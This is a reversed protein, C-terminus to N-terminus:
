ALMAGTAIIGLITNFIGLFNSPGSLKPIKPPTYGVTPNWGFVKQFLGLQNPDVSDMPIQPNTESYYIFKCLIEFTFGGKQSRAAIDAFIPTYPNVYGLFKSLIPYEAALCLNFADCQNPVLKYFTWAIDEQGSQPKNTM